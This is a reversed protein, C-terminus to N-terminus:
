GIIYGDVQMKGLHPGEYVQEHPGYYWETNVDLAVRILEGDVEADHLGAEYGRSFVRADQDLKQLQEILEKVTM